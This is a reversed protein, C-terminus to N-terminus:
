SRVRLFAWDDPPSTALEYFPGVPAGPTSQVILRGGTAATLPRAATFTDELIWAAEDLIALDAAYGRVGRAAGPLSIIRSGNALRILSASDQRLTEALAWLGLRARVTVESSQRLSPSIIVSTSGAKGRATHIALASAAET